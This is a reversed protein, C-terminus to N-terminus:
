SRPVVAIDRTLTQGRLKLVLQIGDPLLERQRLPSPPPNPASPAPPTPPAAGGETAAAAAPPAATTPGTPVLVVNGTSQANTMRGDRYFYVQWEDVGDLLRVQQVENGLLQQSALWQDQLAAGKTVPPGAWRTWVGSRLAWAVMQVGSDAGDRAAVRSIRLTQGDFSLAPVTSGSDFVAQLDQEWQTLVTNLLTTREIAARTGERARLMGDVGQWGLAAIVAMVVLAVLVEVLTFGAGRKNM